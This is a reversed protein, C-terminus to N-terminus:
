KKLSFFRPIWRPVQSMYNQYEIGLINLLETEEFTMMKNFFFIAVFLPLLSLFSFSSLFFALLLVIISLYMPHRIYSYAGDTVLQSKQDSPLFIKQHSFNFLLYSVIVFLVFLILRFAIPILNRIELAFQIIFTDLLWVLFFAIVSGIQIQHSNPHEYGIGPKHNHAM